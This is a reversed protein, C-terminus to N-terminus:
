RFVALAPIEAVNGTNGIKFVADYFDGSVPLQHVKGFTTHRGVMFDIHTPVLFGRFEHDPSEGRGACHDVRPPPAGEM